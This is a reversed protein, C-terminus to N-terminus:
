RSYSRSLNLKPQSRIRQTLLHARQLMHTHEVKWSQAYWWARPFYILSSFFWYCERPERLFRARSWRGSWSIMPMILIHSLWSIDLTICSLKRKGRECNGLMQSEFNCFEKWFELGALPQWLLQSCCDNHFQRHCSKFEVRYFMIPLQGVNLRRCNQVVDRFERYAVPM